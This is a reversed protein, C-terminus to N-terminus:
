HKGNSYAEWAKMYSGMRVRDLPAGARGGKRLTSGVIMRIGGIKMSALREPTMGSGIFLPVGSHKASNMADQLLEPDPARGTTSGTVIVGDAGGRGAVEEIAIAIDDSSLTKAHKVHVDALIGVGSAGLRQKERILEAARGEILGQDTAVVGSLVNIRIFDAGTTAAIALASFADNRLVNIGLQSKTEVRIASAIISMAAITEPNVREKYFPADGFNEIIIGDFGMRELIKAEKVATKLVADLAIAPKKGFVGPSGPLAGLHIVGINFPLKM